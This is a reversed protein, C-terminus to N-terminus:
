TTAEPQHEASEARPAESATSAELATDTAEAETTALTESSQGADHRAGYADCGEVPYEHAPDPPAGELSFPPLEVPQAEAADPTYPDDAGDPAAAAAALVAAKRANGSSEILSEIAGSASMNRLARLTALEEQLGEERIIEDIGSQKRLETSMRRLKALGRGLKRLVTPLEKPGLVVLALIAIVVLEGFSLGFM